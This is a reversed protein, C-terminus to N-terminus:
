EQKIERGLTQPLPAFFSIRTGEWPKSVITMEGGFRTAQNQLNALGLGSGESIRDRNGEPEFGIGNDEVSFGFHNKDYSLDITVTSAQAYKLVNTVLEQIMRYVLAPHVRDMLNGEDRIIVTTEIGFQTKLKNAMDEIAVRLGLNHLLPPNLDSMVKRAHRIASSVSSIGQALKERRSNEKETSKLQDLQLKAVSLQQCVGDHLEMAVREREREELTALKWNLERIRAKYRQGEQALALTAMVTLMLFGTAPIASKVPSPVIIGWVFFIGEMAVAAFLLIGILYIVASHQGKKVAMFAAFIQLPLVFGVLLSSAFITKSPAFVSSIMLLASMGILVVLVKDLRPLISQTSAFGRLFLAGWFIVSASFFALGYRCIFAFRAPIHLAANGSAIYFLLAYSLVFMSLYFYNRDRNLLFVSLHYFVFFLAIVGYIDYGFRLNSDRKFFHDPDYVNLDLLFPADSKVRLYFFAEHDPLLTVELFPIQAYRANDSEPVLWGQNRRFFTGNSRQQFFDARLVIPMDMAIIKKLATHERNALTFRVWVQGTVHNFHPTVKKTPVFRQAFDKSSVDEISYRDGDDVFFDMDPGIRLTAPDSGVIVPEGAFAASCYILLLLLIVFIRNLM